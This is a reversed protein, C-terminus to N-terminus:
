ADRVLNYGFHLLDEEEDGPVPHGPPLVPATLGPLRISARDLGGDGDVIAALDVVHEPQGHQVITITGSDYGDPELNIGDAVEASVIVHVDSPDTVIWAQKFEDGSNTVMRSFEVAYYSFGEAVDIPENVEAELLARATAAVPDDPDLDRARDCWALGEDRVILDVTVPNERFGRASLLALLAVSPAHDPRREVAQRVWRESAAVMAPRPVNLLRLGLRLAADPDGAEAAEALASADPAYTAIDGDISVGCCV